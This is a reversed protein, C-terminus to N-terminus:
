VVLALQQEYDRVHRRGALRQMVRGPSERTGDPLVRAGRVRAKGDDWSSAALIHAIGPARELDCALEVARYEAPVAHVSATDRGEFPDCGPHGRPNLGMEAVRCANLPDIASESRSARHDRVMNCYRNFLATKFLAFWAARLSDPTVEDLRQGLEAPGHSRKLRAFVIGAEQTLDELEYRPIQYLFKHATRRVLNTIRYNTWELM